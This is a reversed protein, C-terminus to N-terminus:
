LNGQCNNLFDKLTRYEEDISETISKMWVLRSRYTESSFSYRAMGDILAKGSCAPSTRFHASHVAASIRRMWSSFTRSISVGPLGTTYPSHSPAGPAGVM